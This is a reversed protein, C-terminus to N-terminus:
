EEATASKRKRAVLSYMAPVAFLTLLTSVLVGGIVAIAMPIRSEAGPGLALAPPVAGVITALSTMLIPRLRIPCAEILAERVGAGRDRVQNTFDVLLISNKKVIGMLLIAGIMSYINLSQGGMWLAILAGSISFPLAALVTFPDIFSNFQSALVMYSVLLGLVLAFILSQFSEQFTKASGSPVFHYGPKLMPTTIKEIAKLADTQSTKPSLNAFVSIARERDQRSISQLSPKKEFTVVESLPVLEGRNNRVLIEKLTAEQVQESPDIKVRIDYRHGGKAYKGALAGGLLASITQGIDAVSIGRQQARKRDPVIHYEQVNSQYDSDIDTMLGTKEMEAMTKQAVEILPEWEPGRLTFEVPFGRRASFGSLSLDQVFIKAGQIAASDKRIITALEQQTPPHGLASNMGREAYPKLTVFAVASNVDGGGFGGVATYYRLVSPYKKLLQELDRVKQDTLQISSGDPTKLRIFLNGQDQPPVFEKKILGALFLSGVFFALSAVLVKWRNSLIKPLIGRYANALGHFAGEVARGLKSTRESIELFQSCRMPTLTLAELLSFAVAVSITVGFQLFYKGILGKMFAVPLFIAIIAATAAMAAFGIERSGVLSAKMRSLGREKHRVINELVMIADDVVIGISLSLGLLTFTNLTFGCAKLVMFSGIISTPIALVVNITASFSGLFMWCVLATLLASLILTFNLEHISDEIFTTSDFNIGLEMGKPLGKAVEKMREKVVRGVEVANSGRQKRIGLGIASKGMLRSIRRIDALGDEVSAVQDLRIPTFNPSGGRKNISLSSFEPITAAEGMTRVNFEQKPEEIRGAPPENHETQIADIVDGVTMDFRNLKKPSVWVRLNPDIYGGLFVDAVGPATLFKDKLSDRVYAMLDRVPMSDTTVALWLIPQDEPNVKTVIPPDINKPLQRQAQALKTQVEQVAVDINKELGFEVTINASGSKASSSIGNIGEVSMLASEVPDIVDLEMVEPAAGELTININVVPFDVDPLQSVGMRQFSIWGFVILGLMLMWALVPRRISLESINFSSSEPPNPPTM